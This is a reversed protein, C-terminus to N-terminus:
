DSQNEWGWGPKSVKRQFEKESEFSEKQSKLSERLGELEKNVIDIFRSIKDTIDMLNNNVETITKPNYESIKEKLSIWDGKFNDMSWSM